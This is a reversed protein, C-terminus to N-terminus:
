SESIAIDVVEAKLDLPLFEYQCEPYVPGVQEPPLQYLSNVLGSISITLCNLYRFVTSYPDGLFVSVTYVGDLLKPSTVSARVVGENPWPVDLNRRELMPNHGLIPRGDAEHIIFSFGPITLKGRVNSYEMELIIKDTDQYAAVRRVLSDSPYVKNSPENKASYAMLVSSISGAAILRGESLLIGHSCLSRLSGLNHSVLLVTRGSRAVDGMKGLCKKQFEGDGVALVEDVLLIEPKLHAAVAFALRVQMGSSYRKVPTDLFREVGAFDVIEDYQARIESRTMGLIAGNLFINERGSLEPHFGTGVELLSAVRGDIEIRGNTPETIRSLLKLLTSKGAGNSGVIGLVEGRKIEFSLDRLAWFEEVTDGDVIQRGRAVDLAKRAFSKAHRVVADRLTDHGDLRTSVHGVLYRKSINEVRIVVDTNAM